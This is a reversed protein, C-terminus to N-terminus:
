GDKIPSRVNRSKLAEFGASRRNKHACLYNHFYSRRIKRPKREDIGHLGIWDLVFTSYPSPVRERFCFFCCAMESDSLNGMEKKCCPRREGVGRRERLDTLGPASFFSFLSSSARLRKERRILGLWNNGFLWNIWGAVM